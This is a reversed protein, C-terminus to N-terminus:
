TTAGPSKLERGQGEAGALAREEEFTQRWGEAALHLMKMFDARHETPTEELTTELEAFVAEKEM